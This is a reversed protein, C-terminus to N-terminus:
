AGDDQINSNRFKLVKLSKNSSKLISCMKEACEGDIKTEAVNLEEIFINSRFIPLLILFNKVGLNNESIDLAQIRDTSKFALTFHELGLSDYLMNQSLKDSQSAQIEQMKSPDIYRMGIMNRSLNISTISINDKLVQSLIFLDESHLGTGQLDLNVIRNYQIAEIPMPRDISGNISISKIDYECIFKALYKLSFKDM